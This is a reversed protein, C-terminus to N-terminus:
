FLHSSPDLKAQMQSCSINVPFPPPFCTSGKLLARLSLCPCLSTQWLWLFHVSPIVATLPNEATILHQHILREKLWTHFYCWSHRPPTRAGPCPRLSIKEAWRLTTGPMCDCLARQEARLVLDETQSFSASFSASFLSSLVSSSLMDLSRLNVHSAM